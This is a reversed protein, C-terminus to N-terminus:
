AKTKKVSDAFIWFTRDKNLIVIGGDASGSAGEYFKLNDWKDIVYKVFTTCGKQFDARKNEPVKEKIKPLFAKVHGMYQKKTVEKKQLNFYKLIGNTQGLSGSVFEMITDEYELEHPVADGLLKDGSFHDILVNKSVPIDEFVEDLTM